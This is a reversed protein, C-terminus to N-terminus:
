RRGLKTLRCLPSTGGGIRTGGGHRLEHLADAKEIDDDGIMKDFAIRENILTVRDDNIEEVKVFLTEV